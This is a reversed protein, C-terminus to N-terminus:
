KNLSSDDEVDEYKKDRLKRFLDLGVKVQGNKDKARLYISAGPRRAKHKDIKKFDDDPKNVLTSLPVQISIDTRDAFSYIGEIYMTFASTQVPMRHIYVDGNKMDLTDKLEAFQVNTLDRNKFVYKQINQLPEFNSLSANKIAFFIEGSMSSPVFKGASNISAIINAKSDMVGAINNSTLSTQGFNDLGYFLKKINIHQLSMQATLQHLEDNVQHVKATLNFTGDAHQLYAKQIQWDDEQFLLSATVNNALFNHLTIKDAKMNFLLNGQEVANDIANATSALGGKKKAVDKNRKSFLSKFDSLDIDPSYVTCNINAKGPEETSIRNLHDGVINVVFHNTNLDCKFSDVLLNNGAIKINGNCNSFTINRPVYVIKGNHILISADLQDLLSADAILPGNYALYLKANGNILRITETSLADDLQPLSCQSYFQFQIVPQLLNTIMINKGELEIDGWKSVFSDITVRSNDDTLPLKNNVQNIFSGKFYCNNFNIVPTGMDNGATTFDVKVLPITKYALPGDITIQADFGKSFDLKKIKESTTSKLMALAAPYSINKTSADIRFHADPENLFFAGRIIFPQEQIKVKTDNFSLIKGATDFQLKWEAKVRQNELWYGKPMNFGLGRIFVDEDLDIYYKSGSLTIDADVDKMRIEFRKQKIANESITTVNNLEVNNIVVPKKKKRKIKNQPKLVYSNSYGNKDTFVHIVADDMEVSNIKTKASLLDFLSIKAVITGAKLFPRHYVSDLIAVNNLRVGIKPFSRWVTIDAKDIKLEGVISERMRSTLFKILREKSSSIYISLGIMFLLYIGIVVLSVRGIRRWTKKSFSKM